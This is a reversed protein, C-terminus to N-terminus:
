KSAIDIRELANCNTVLFLFTSQAFFKLGGLAVNKNEICVDGGGLPVNKNDMCLTQAVGEDGNKNKTFCLM